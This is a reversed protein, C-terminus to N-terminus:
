LLITPSASAVTFNGRSLLLPKRLTLLLINTAQAGDTGQKWPSAKSTVSRERMKSGLHGSSWILQVKPGTSGGALLLCMVQRTRQM